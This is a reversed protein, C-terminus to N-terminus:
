RTRARARQLRKACTHVTHARSVSRFIRTHSQIVLQRTRSNPAVSSAIERFFHFSHLFFQGRMEPSDEYRDCHRGNPEPRTSKNGPRLFVYSVEDLSQFATTIYARTRGLSMTAGCSCRSRSAAAAPGDLHHRRDHQLHGLGCTASDPPIGITPLRAHTLYPLRHRRRIFVRGPTNEEIGGGSGAYSPVATTACPPSSSGDNPSLSRDPQALARVTRNNALM